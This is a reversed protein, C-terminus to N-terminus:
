KNDKLKDYFVKLDMKLQKIYKDAVSRSRGIYSAFKRISNKKEIFFIEWVVKDELRELSQYYLENIAILEDMTIENFVKEDIDDENITDHLDPTFEEMKKVKQKSGMERYQSNSWHTNMYIFNSIFNKLIVEDDILNKRDIIFMYLESLFYDPEENFLNKQFFRNEIYNKITKRNKTFYTDISEKTM